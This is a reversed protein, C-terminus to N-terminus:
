GNTTMLTVLQYQITQIGKAIEKRLREETIYNIADGDIHTGIAEHEAIVEKRIRQRSVDVFPALHALSITQGGYQSSAVQAIIQTTITCATSFSHPKEILVESIVTGNQLMDQLNILDCNHEKQAFYDSDHFHIIGAEHARVVEEPLLVRKSLDKSVEGAMYDRQTSNIVPNKNSNEQNVEENMHDLLALIGNDTTNTKRMLERKYRYRVYKQAVEYGRLEMIGTEVMDQIDEVNVAHTSEEIKKAVNDAVAMIQYENMRHLKDVDKNAGKIANIIKELDFAVEEGNRKIVNTKIEANM